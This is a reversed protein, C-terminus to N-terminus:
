WTRAYRWSGGKHPPQAGRRQGGSGAAESAGSDKPERRPRRQENAGEAEQMNSKNNRAGTGLNLIRDVVERQQCLREVSGEPPTAELRHYVAEIQGQLALGINPAIGSVLAASNSMLFDEDTWQHADFYQELCLLESAIERVHV